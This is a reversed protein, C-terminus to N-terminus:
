LCHKRRLLQGTQETLAHLWEGVAELWDQQSDILDLNFTLPILHSSNCASLEYLTITTM